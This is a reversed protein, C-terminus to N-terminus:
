AARAGSFGRSSAGGGVRAMWGPMVGRGPCGLIRWREGENGAHRGVNEDDPGADVTEEAGQRQGAPPQGDAQQVPAAQRRLGGPGAGANKGREQGPVITRLDVGQALPGAREPRVRDALQGPDSRMILNPCVPATPGEVRRCDEAIRTLWADLGETTRANATPFAGIVGNRCAASVLECGSVRMMPAAILPLRLRGAFVSDTGM